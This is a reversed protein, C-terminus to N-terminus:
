ADPLWNGTFHPETKDRFADRAIRTDETAFNVAQAAAEADLSEKLSRGPSANLLAKNQAIAIRPGNALRLALDDVYRDLEDDEIVWSVLGHSAAETASLFDGTLALRKALQMGVLRPLLWSGGFDVSLGRKAFIQSFRADPAAVVIDCGLALNWGAGVAVGRVKAIVPKPMDHLAIAARNVHYMRNLRHASAGDDSSLDAGACFANGAGTIVISRIDEDDRLEHLTEELVAWTSYDLANLRHPRNLTVLAVPGNRSLQVANDAM